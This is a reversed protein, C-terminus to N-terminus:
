STSASPRHMADRGAASGLHTLGTGALGLRAPDPHDIASLLRSAELEAAPDAAEGTRHARATDILRARDGGDCNALPRRAVTSSSPPMAEALILRRRRDAGRHQLLRVATM